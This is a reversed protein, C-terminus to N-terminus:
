AEGAPGELVDWAHEFVPVFSDAWREPHERVSAKVESLPLWRVESVEGPDPNVEGARSAALSGAFVHVIEREGVDVDEVRVTGVPELPPADIGLEERTERKAAQRPANGARVHGSASSTWRGPYTRKDESRRQVLLEGDEGLLFVHVARHLLAQEHVTRRSAISVPVDDEDVVDLREREDAM